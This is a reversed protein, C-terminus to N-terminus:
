GFLEEPTTTNDILKVGNLFLNVGEKVNVTPHRLGDPTVYSSQEEIHYTSPTVSIKCFEGNRALKPDVKNGASDALPVANRSAAIISAMGTKEDIKWPLKPNEIGETKCLEMSIRELERFSRNGQGVIYYLSFKGFKDAKSLCVHNLSGSNLIITSGKKNSSTM